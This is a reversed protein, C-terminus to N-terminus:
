EIPNNNKPDFMVLFSYKTRRQVCILDHKKSLLLNKLVNSFKWRYDQSLLNKM